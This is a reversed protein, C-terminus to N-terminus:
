DHRGDDAEINMPKTRDAREAHSLLPVVLAAALLLSTFIRHRMFAHIKSQGM